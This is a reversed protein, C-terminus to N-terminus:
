RDGLGIAFEKIRTWLQPGPKGNTQQTVKSTCRGERPKQKRKETAHLQAIPYTLTRRTKVRWPHLLLPLTLDDQCRM